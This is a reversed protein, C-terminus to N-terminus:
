QVRQELHRSLSPIGDTYIYDRIPKIYHKMVAEPAIGASM